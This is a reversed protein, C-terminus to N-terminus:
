PDNYISEPVQSGVLCGDYMCSLRRPGLCVLVATTSGFIGFEIDALPGKLGSAWNKCLSNEDEVLMDVRYKDPVSYLREYEAGWPRIKSWDEEYHFRKM